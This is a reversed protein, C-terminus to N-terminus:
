NIQENQKEKKEKNNLKKNLNDCMKQLKINEKKLNIQEEGIIKYQNLVQTYENNIKKSEPIQINYIYNKMDISMHININNNMEYQPSYIINNIQSQNIFNKIKLNLINKM